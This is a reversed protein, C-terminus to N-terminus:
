GTNGERVKMGDVALLGSLICEKLGTGMVIAHYQGDALPEYEKGALTIKDVKGEEKPASQLLVPHTLSSLRCHHAVVYWQSQNLSDAIFSYVAEPFVNSTAPSLL